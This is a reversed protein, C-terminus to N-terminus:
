ITPPDAAKDATQREAPTQLKDDLIRVGEVKLAATVAAFKAHYDNVAGSLTVVGDVTKVGIKFGKLSAVGAIAQKVRATVQSDSVRPDSTATGPMALGLALVLAAMAPLARRSARKSLYRSM